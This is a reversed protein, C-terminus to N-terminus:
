RDDGKSSKALPRITDQVDQDNEEPVIEEIKPQHTSFLLNEIQEQSVQIGWLSRGGVFLCLFFQRLLRRLM